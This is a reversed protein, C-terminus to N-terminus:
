GFFLINWFYFSIEIKNTLIHRCHGWCSDWRSNRTHRGAWLWGPSCSPETLDTLDEWNFIRESYMNYNIRSWGPPHSHLSWRSWHWHSQTRWGPWSPRPTCRQRRCIDLLKGHQSDSHGWLRWWWLLWCYLEQVALLTDLHNSQTLPLINRIGIYLHVTMLTM